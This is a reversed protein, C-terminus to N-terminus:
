AARSSVAVMECLRRDLAEDIAVRVHIEVDDARAVEAELRQQGARACGAACDGASGADGLLWLCM